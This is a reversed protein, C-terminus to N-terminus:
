KNLVQRHHRNFYSDILRDTIDTQSAHQLLQRHTQRHHRNFYNDILRDTIDTQSTHQLLQRHTQRHQKNYSDILRDTIDTKTATQSGTQRDTRQTPSTHRGEHVIESDTQGLDTHSRQANQRHTETSQWHTHTNSTQLDARYGFVIVCVGRVRAVLQVHIMQKATQNPNIMHCM